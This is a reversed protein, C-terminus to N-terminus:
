EEVTRKFRKAAITMKVSLTKDTKEVDLEKLNILEDKEIADIYLILEQMKINKIQARLSEEEFRDSGSIEKVETTEAWGSEPTIKNTQCFREFYSKLNSYDTKKSLLEALNDEEQTIANYDSILADTKSAFTRAQRIGSVFQSSKSQIFYLGSCLMLVCCGMTIAIYRSAADEQTSMIFKALRTIM